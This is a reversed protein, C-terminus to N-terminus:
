RARNGTVCILKKALHMGGLSKPNERPMKAPECAKRSSFCNNRDGSSQPRHGMARGSHGLNPRHDRKAPSASSWTVMHDMSMGDGRPALALTGQTSLRRRARQALSHGSRKTCLLGCSSGLADADFRAGLIQVQQRRGLWTARRLTTPKGDQRKPRLSEQGRGEPAM